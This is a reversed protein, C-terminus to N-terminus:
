FLSLPQILQHVRENLTFLFHPSCKLLLFILPRKILMWKRISCYAFWNFTCKDHQITFCHMCNTLQSNFLTQSSLMILQQCFHLINDFKSLLNLLILLLFIYLIPNIVSRKYILEQDPCITDKVNQHPFEPNDILRFVQDPCSM